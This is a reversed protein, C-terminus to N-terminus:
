KRHNIWKDLWVVSGTSNYYGYSYTYGTDMGTCAYTTYHGVKGKDILGEGSRYLFVNGSKSKASIAWTTKGGLVGYCYSLNSSTADYASKTVKFQLGPAPASTISAYSSGGKPYEGNEAAYLEIQKVNNSIDAKLTTDYARDQIGNYAVMTIAALIAIVVIVILLEVITFGQKYKTGSM